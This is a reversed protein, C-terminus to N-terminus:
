NSFIYSKLEFALWLQCNGYFGMVQLNMGKVALDMVQLNLAGMYLSGQRRGWVPKLWDLMLNKEMWGKPHVRVHVGKPFKMAKPLTKRKVGKLM